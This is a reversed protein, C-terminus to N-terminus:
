KAYLGDSCAPAEGCTVRSYLPDNNKVIFDSIFSFSTKFWLTKEEKWIFFLITLDQNANVM